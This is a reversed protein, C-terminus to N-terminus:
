FSFPTDFIIKADAHSWFNFHEPKVGKVKVAIFHLDIIIV